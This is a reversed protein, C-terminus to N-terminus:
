EKIELTFENPADPRVEVSLPSAKPSSYIVPLVNPGEGNDDVEPKWTVTVKYKGPLAGDGPIKTSVEFTGDPQIPAVPMWGPDKSEPHLIIEGNPTPIEKYVVKGKVPVLQPEPKRCAPILCCLLLLGHLPEIKPLSM